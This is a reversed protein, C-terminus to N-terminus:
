RRIGVPDQLPNKAFFTMKEVHRLIKPSFAPNGRFCLGKEVFKGRKIQGLDPGTM